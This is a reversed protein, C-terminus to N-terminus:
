YLFDTLKTPYKIEVMKLCDSFNASNSVQMEYVQMDFASYVLNDSTEKDHDYNTSIQVTVELWDKM